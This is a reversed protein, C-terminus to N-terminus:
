RTRRLKAFLSRFRHRRHPAAEEKVREREAVADLEHEREHQVDEM